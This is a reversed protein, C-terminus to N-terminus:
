LSRERLDGRVDQLVETKFSRHETHDEHVTGLHAFKVATIEAVCPRGVHEREALFFRGAMQFFHKGRVDQAAFVNIEKPIDREAKGRDTGLGLFILVGKFLLKMIAETVADQVEHAVLILIADRELLHM